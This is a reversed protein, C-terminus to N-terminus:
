SDHREQIGVLMMVNHERLFMTSAPKKGLRIFVLCGRAMSGIDRQMAKNEFPPSM